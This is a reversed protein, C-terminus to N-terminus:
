IWFFNLIDANLNAQVIDCTKRLTTDLSKKLCYLIFLIVNNCTKGAQVSAEAPLRLTVQSYCHFFSMSREQQKEDFFDSSKKDNFIGLTV